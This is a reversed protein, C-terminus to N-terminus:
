PRSYFTYAIYSHASSPNSFPKPVVEIAQIGAKFMGLSNPRRHQLREVTNGASHITNLDYNSLYSDRCLIVCFGSRALIMRTIEISPHSSREM